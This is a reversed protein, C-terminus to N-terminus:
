NLRDGIGPILLKNATNSITVLKLSNQGNRNVNMAQLIHQDLFVFSSLLERHPTPILDNDTDNPRIHPVPYHYHNCTPNRCLLPPTLEEEENHDYNEDKKDEGRGEYEDEDGSEGKDKGRNGKEMNSHSTMRAEWRTDEVGCSPPLASSRSRSTYICPTATTYLTTSTFFMSNTFHIPILPTFESPHPTSM